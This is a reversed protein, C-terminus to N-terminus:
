FISVATLVEFRVSSVPRDIGQKGKCKYYKTTHDGFMPATNLLVALRCGIHEVEGTYQM